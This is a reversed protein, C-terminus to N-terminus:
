ANMSGEVKEIEAVDEVCGPCFDKGRIRRWGRKRASDRAIKATRSAFDETDCKDCRILKYAIISM